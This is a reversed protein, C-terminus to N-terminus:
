VAEEEALVQNYVEMNAEGTAKSTVLGAVMSDSVNLATRGMDILPEIAILLGALGIPLGMTSLVVLAAFTAGGGVGAIGFSGIAVVIILKVLFGLELPNIGVAPAAMVALMAPYVGACGNQGICTGFSASLNASAESVGMKEQLTRITLPMTGASTRSTFAFTLVPVAKKVYTLPNFGTFALILLHIIFMTILSLYSVIIFEVLNMMAGFNSRSIFGTMLAMVGYPTLRLVLAVMRMVVDHAATIIKCFLEASEPKKKKIGLVAIGLFSAFFVTGLTASSGQGTFAYFPNDPIIEILQQPIPKATFASMRKAVNAQAGMEAEGVQISGADLGFALSYGAGVAAAVATTAILVGIILAGTKGLVKTDQLNTIASTISVLILPIVIMKLLRVYGSGIVNFWSNSEKIIASNAGYVSQLIFGFIIGFGLATLVRTAFSYHKRQMHWLICVLALMGILNICIAVTQNM